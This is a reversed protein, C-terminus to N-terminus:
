CPFFIETVMERKRKEKKGFGKLNWLHQSNKNRGLWSSFLIEELIWRSL